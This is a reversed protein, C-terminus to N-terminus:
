TSVGRAKDRESGDLRDVDRIIMLLTEKWDRVDCVDGDSGPEGNEWRLKMNVANWWAKSEAVKALVIWKPLVPQCSYVVTSFYLLYLLCLLNHKM